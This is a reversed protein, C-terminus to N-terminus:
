QQPSRSRASLQSSADSLRRRMVPSLVRSQVFTSDDVDRVGSPLLLGRACWWSCSRGDIDYAGTVVYSQSRTATKQCKTV